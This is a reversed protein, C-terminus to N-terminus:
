LVSFGALASDSISSPTAPGDGAALSTGPTGAKVGIASSASTAGFIKDGATNKSAIAYVVNSNGSLNSAEYGLVVNKSPVFTIGTPATLALTGAFANAAFAVLALTLAIKKLM